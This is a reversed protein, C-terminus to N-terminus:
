TSNLAARRSYLVREPRAVDIDARESAGTSAPLTCGLRRVTLVYDVGCDKNTRKHLFHPVSGRWNRRNSIRAACANALAAKWARDVEAQEEKDDSDTRYREIYSETYWKLGHMPDLLSSMLALRKKEGELHHDLVYRSM